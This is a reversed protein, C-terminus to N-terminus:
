SPRFISPPPTLIHRNLPGQTPTMGLFGPARTSSHGLSLPGQRTHCGVKGPGDAHARGVEPGLRAGTDVGGWGSGSKELDRPDGEERHLSSLVEQGGM